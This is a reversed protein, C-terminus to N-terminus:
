ISIYGAVLSTTTGWIFAFTVYLTGGEKEALMFVLLSLALLMAGVVEVLKTIYANAGNSILAATDVLQKLKEEPLATKINQVEEDKAAEEASGPPVVNTKSIILGNILGFAVATLATAVIIIEQTRADLM